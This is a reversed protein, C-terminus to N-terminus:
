DHNATSFPCRYIPYGASLRRCMRSRSATTHLPFAFGNWCSNSEFPQRIPNRHLKGFIYRFSLQSRENALRTRIPQNTPQDQSISLVVKEDRLLVLFYYQPTTFVIAPKCLLSLKLQPSDTVMRPTKSSYLVIQVCLIDYPGLM